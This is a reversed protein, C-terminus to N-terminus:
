DKALKQLLEDPLQFNGIVNQVDDRDELADLMKLLKEGDEMSLMQLTNPKWTLKASEPAGFKPEFFERVNNLDDPNCYISHQYEDSECDLAGSEVTAEFVSEATGTSVPYTIMGVQTFMFSVSGSEGLNGGYKTFSSRVESATRNRNDTLAEVIIAVGGTGYGEYRIEEFNEGEAPNSAKNIAASIRDKPVNASRAAYMATRLRPNSEPDASIKAAVMIERLLKTFMKARKADQAGKRHMINKFQSHGAM